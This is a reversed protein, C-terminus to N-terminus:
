SSAGTSLDLLSVLEKIENELFEFKPPVMRFLVDEVDTFKHKSVCRVLDATMWTELPLDKLPVVSSSMEGREFALVLKSITYPPSAEYRNSHYTELFVLQMGHHHARDVLWKTVVQSVGTKPESGVLAKVTPCNYKRNFTERVEPHHNLNEQMNAMFSELATPEWEDIMNRFTLFLAWRGDHPAQRVMVEEIARMVKSYPGEHEPTLSTALDLNVVDFPFLRLLESYYRDTRDVLANEVTGLGLLRLKPLQAEMRAYKTPDLEFAAVECVLKGDETRTDILTYKMFLSVDLRYYAPLTLYKLRRGNRSV